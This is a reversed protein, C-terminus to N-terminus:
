RVNVFGMFKSQSFNEKIYGTTNTFTSNKGLYFQGAGNFTLDTVALRDCIINNQGGILSTITAKSSPTSANITVTSGTGAALYLYKLNYTYTSSLTFTLSSLASYNCTSGSLQSPFKPYDVLTFSTGTATTEITGVYLPFTCFASGTGTTGTFIESLTFTTGTATTKITGIYDGTTTTVQMGEYLTTSSGTTFSDSNNTWSGSVLTPAVATIIQYGANLTVSSSTTFTRSSTNWSGTLSVSHATVIGGITPSGTTSLLVGSTGIKIIISPLSVTGLAVTKAGTITMYGIDGVATSLGAFSVSTTGGSVITAGNFTIVGSTAQATFSAITVSMGNFNITGKSHSFTGQCNFGAGFTISPNVADASTFSSISGGNLSITASTNRMGLSIVTSNNVTTSSGLIIDGYYVAGLIQYTLATTRNSTNITGLNYNQGAAGSIFTSLNNNTLMITDQALPFNADSGIQSTTDSLAWAASTTLSGTGTKNWYVTKAAPFTIGSNGGCDGASTPVITGVGGAITIDKFDINAPSSWTGITLTRATGVANSRIFNRRIQTAGNALFTTITQNGSISLTRITTTDAVFELTTFTNTGSLTQSAAVGNLSVKSTYSYNGGTFSSGVAITGTGSNTFNSGGAFFAGTITLTQSANITLSRVASVTGTTFTAITTTTSMTGITLAGATLSLQNIIQGSATTSLTWGGGVGNLTVSWIMTPAITITKGTTTATFTVTTSGLTYINSGSSASFSGSINWVSSAAGNFTVGSGSASFDRCNITGSITVTFTGTSTDFFVDDNSNFTSLLTGNSVYFVGSKTALAGASLTFSTGTAGTSIFGILTGDAAVVQAGTALTVSATTTFTTSTGTSSGSAVVTPSASSWKYKSGNQASSDWTDTGAIWYQAM